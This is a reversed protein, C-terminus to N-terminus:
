LSRGKGPAGGIVPSGPLPEPELCSPPSSALGCPRGVRMRLLSPQTCAGGGAVTCHGPAGRPRSLGGLGRGGGRTERGAHSIVFRTELLSSCILVWKGYVLCLGKFHAAMERQHVQQTERARGGSQVLRGKHQVTLLTLHPRALLLRQPGVPFACLNPGLLCAAEGAWHKQGFRSCPPPGSPSGQGPSGGLHRSHASATHQHENPSHLSEGCGGQLRSPRSDAAPRGSCVPADWGPWILAGRLRSPGEFLCSRCVQCCTCLYVFYPGSPFSSDNFRLCSPNGVCAVAHMLWSTQAGSPM